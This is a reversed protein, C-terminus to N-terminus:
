FLLTYLFVFFQPSTVISWIMNVKHIGETNTKKAYRKTFIFNFDSEEIEDLSFDDLCPRVMPKSTIETGM